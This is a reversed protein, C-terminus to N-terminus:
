EEHDATRTVYPAPVMTTYLHGQFDVAM